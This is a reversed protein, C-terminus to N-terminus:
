QFILRIIELPLKPSSSLRIAAQVSAVEEALLRDSTELSAQQRDEGIVIWGDNLDQWGQDDLFVFGLM